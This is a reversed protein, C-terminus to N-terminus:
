GAHAPASFELEDALPAFYAEVDAPDVAALDAPSWKPRQDKDIITARVGEYYDHGALIRAAIRFEVRLAEELDLGAGIEVQRLAIALSTPSKSALAALCSAAFGSQENGLRQAIAAATRAKFCRDIWGREKIFASEPPDAAEAAIAAAPEEGKALREALADHRATPVYASALKLALVDGSGIRAGTLALFAGIAGPLRPLFYTAGVDPFFGIGVEPMAFTVNDGAVCHAAHVSLGVGGGMVIGDILAVVPKPYRAISQDLRYEQRFFALQEDGRGSKGLEYLARIDAGACFARGGAGRIAVCGVAADTRWRDLAAAIAQAMGINLSNLAAPRNLTILGCAGRTEIIVDEVM